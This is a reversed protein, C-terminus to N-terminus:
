FFFSQNSCVYVFTLFTGCTGTLYKQLSSRDLIIASYKFSAYGIGLSSWKVSQFFCIGYVLRFYAMFGYDQGDMCPTHGKMWRVPNPKNYRPSLHPMGLIHTPTTIRHFLPFKRFIENILAKFGYLRTRGYLPTDQPGVSRTPNTTGRHFTLRGSFTHPPPSATFSHFNGFFRM